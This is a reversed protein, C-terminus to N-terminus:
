EADFKKLRELYEERRIIGRSVCLEFIARLARAAEEQTEFIPKLRALAAVDEESKHVDDADPRSQQLIEDRLKDMGRLISSPDIDGTRRPGSARHVNRPDRDLPDGYFHHRVIRQIETESAIQLRTKFGLRFSLEDVPKLNTPDVIAIHLTKTTQDARFPILGNELALEPTVLNLASKELLATRLQFRELNTMKALADYLTVEEVMGHDVLIQGLRVGTRAQERLASVLQGQTLVGSRLLIEGLRERAV